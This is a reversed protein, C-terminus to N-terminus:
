QVNNESFHLSNTQNIFNLLLKGCPTVNWLVAYNLLKCYM